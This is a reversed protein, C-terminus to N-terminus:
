GYYITSQKNSVERGFELRTPQVRNAANLSIIKNKGERARRLVTNSPEIGYESAIEEVLMWKLPNHYYRPIGLDDRLDDNITTAETIPKESVIYLSEATSPVPWVNVTGNPTTPNYWLCRPRESITKDFILNYERESIVDVVNDYNSSDRVFARKITDPRPTSLDPTGDEGVTYSAQASVLTIDESTTSPIFLNEGSLEAVLDQFVLLGTQTDDPNVTEGAALAVLVRLAAQILETVSRAVAM